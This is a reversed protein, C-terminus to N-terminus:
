IIRNRMKALDVAYESHAPAVEDHGRIQDRPRMVYRPIEIASRTAHMQALEIGFRDPITEASRPELLQHKVRRAAPIQEKGHWIPQRTAEIKDERKNRRRQM